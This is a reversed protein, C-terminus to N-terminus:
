SILKTLLKYSLIKGKFSVIAFVEVTYREFRVGFNEVRATFRHKRQPRRCPYM